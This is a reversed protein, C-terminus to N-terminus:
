EVIEVETWAALHVPLGSSNHCYSYMGDIHHFQIVEGAMVEPAAPPIVVGEGGPQPLVRIRTNNPVHMLQM